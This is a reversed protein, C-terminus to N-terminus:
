DATNIYRASRSHEQEDATRTQRAGALPRMKSDRPPRRPSDQFGKLTSEQPPCTQRAPTGHHGATSTQQARGITGLHNATSPRRAGETKTPRGHEDVSRVQRAASPADEPGRPREPARPLGGPAEEPDRQPMKPGEQLGRPTRTPCRPPRTAAVRPRKRGLSRWPRNAERTRTAVHLSRPGEQPGKPGTKPADQPGRLGDQDGWVGRSPGESTEQASRLLSLRIQWLCIHNGSPIPEKPSGRPARKPRRPRRKPLRSAM